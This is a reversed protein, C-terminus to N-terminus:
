KSGNKKDEKPEKYYLQVPIGAKALRKAIQLIENGYYTNLYFKTVYEDPDHKKSYCNDKYGQKPHMGLMNELHKMDNWFGCFQYKEVIRPKKTKPDIDNPNDTEGMFEYICVGMCNGCYINITFKKSITKWKEEGTLLDVEGSKFTHKQILTYHGMKHKWSWTVPM